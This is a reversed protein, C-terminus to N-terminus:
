FGKIIDIAINTIERYGFDEDDLIDIIFMELWNFEKFETVTWKTLEKIAHEKQLDFFEDENYETGSCVFTDGYAEYDSYSQLEEIGDPEDINEVLKRCTSEFMPCDKLHDIILLKTM